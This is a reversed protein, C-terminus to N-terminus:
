KRARRRMAAFGTAGLGILLALSGPEPTGSPPSIATVTFQTQLGSGQSFTAAGNGGINFVRSTDPSINGAVFSLLAVSNSNIFVDLLLNGQSPDYNFPSTAFFTDFTGNNLGTIAQTGSFVTTNDAGKNAAYTTSMGTLPATTTSLSLVLNDTITGTASSKFAIGTISVPGSFATSTYEEQYEGVYNNTGIPFVNNVNTGGITVQARSPQSCCLLTGLLAICLGAGTRWVTFHRM